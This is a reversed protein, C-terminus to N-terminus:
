RKRIKFLSYFFLTMSIKTLNNLLHVADNQVYFIEGVSIKDLPNMDITYMTQTFHPSSTWLGGSTEVSLQQVPFFLGYNWWLLILALASFGFLVTYKDFNFSYDNRLFTKKTQEDYGLYLGIAVVFAPLSFLVKQLILNFQPMYFSLIWHQDQFIYYSGMWFFEFASITLGVFGCTICLNESNIIWLRERLHKSLGIFLASYIVSASWHTGLGYYKWFVSVWESFTIKGLVLSPFSYLLWAVQDITSDSGLLVWAVLPLMFFTDFLAKRLKLDDKLVNIQFGKINLDLSDLTSFPNAIFQKLPSM